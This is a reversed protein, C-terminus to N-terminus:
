RRPNILFYYPQLAAPLLTGSRVLTCHEACICLQESDLPKVRTTARTTKLTVARAATIAQGEETCGEMAEVPGELPDVIGRCM